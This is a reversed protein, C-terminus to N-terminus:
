IDDDAGSDDTTDGDGEEDNEAEKAEEAAHEASSLMLKVIIQDGAFAISYHRDVRRAFTALALKVRRYDSRKFRLEDHRTVISAFGYKSNRPMTNLGFTTVRRM